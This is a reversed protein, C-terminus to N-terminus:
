IGLPCEFPVAARQAVARRNTAAAFAFGQVVGVPTQPVRFQWRGIWTISDLSISRLSPRPM